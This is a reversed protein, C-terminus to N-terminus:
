YHVTRVNFLLRHQIPCFLHPKDTLVTLVVCKKEKVARILLGDKITSHYIDDMTCM